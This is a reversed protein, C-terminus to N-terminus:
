WPKLTGDQSLIRRVEAEEEPAAVIIMEDIKGSASLAQASRLLMPRSLLPLFAKNSGGGMRRGQGAAALVAVNM